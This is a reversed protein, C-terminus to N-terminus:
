CQSRTPGFVAATPFQPQATSNDTNEGIPYASSGGARRSEVGIERFAENGSPPCLMACSHSSPRARFIRKIISADTHADVADATLTGTAKSKVADGSYACRSIVGNMGEGEAYRCALQPCEKRSGSAPPRQQVLREAAPLHRACRNASDSPLNFRWQRGWYANLYGSIAIAQMEWQFLM